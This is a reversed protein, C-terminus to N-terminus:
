DFPLGCTRELPYGPQSTSSMQPCVRRDVVFPNEPSRLRSPYSTRREAGRSEQLPMSDLRVSSATESPSSRRSESRRAAERKLLPRLQHLRIPLHPPKM